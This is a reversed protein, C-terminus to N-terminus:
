PQFTVRTPSALSRSITSRANLVNFASVVSWRQDNNVTVNGIAGRVFLVCARSVALRQAFLFDFQGLPIVAPRLLCLEQNGVASSFKAALLAM